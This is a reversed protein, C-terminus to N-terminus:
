LYLKQKQTIILTFSYPSHIRMRLKRHDCLNSKLEDIKKKPTCVGRVKQLEPACGVGYGCAFVVVTMNSM